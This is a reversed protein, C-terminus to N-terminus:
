LIRCLVCQRNYSAFLYYMVMSSSGADSLMNSVEEEMLPGSFMQVQEREVHPLPQSNTVVAASKVGTM